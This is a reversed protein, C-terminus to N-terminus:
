GRFYVLGIALAATGAVVGVAATKWIKRRYGLLVQPDTQIQKLLSQALRNSPDAQLARQIEVLAQEENGVELLEVATNALRQAQQASGPSAPAPAEAAPASAAPEPARGAQPLPAPAAAPKQSAPAQSPSGGPPTSCAALWAAAAVASWRARRRFRTQNDM